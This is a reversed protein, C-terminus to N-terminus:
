DDAPSIMGLWSLERVSTVLAACCADYDVELLTTLAECIQKLTLEGDCAGVAAALLSDAAVSREIPRTTRLMIARPSEEGPRHERVEVVNKDLLWHKALIENDQLLSADIGHAFTAHMRVGLNESDFSGAAQELYFIPESPLTAPLRKIRVIGLGIATIQRAAFDELWASLLSEFQSDGPRIGGDRIWTEAYQAPSLSDREIVWAAVSTSAGAAERVWAEVRTLGNMGWPSEWNALALLMGDESLHQLAGTVVRKVLEDGVLGADRYDYQSVSTSQRPTIVFPPNSAILEFSDTHVPEFLDGQRFEIVEHLDNLRANARAFILARESIDTAVVPGRLALHLAVIGCGTGLDLSSSVTGPPLQAILSKTAGGVGM